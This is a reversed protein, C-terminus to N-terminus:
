RIVWTESHSGLEPGCITGIQYYSFDIQLPNISISAYGTSIATFEVTVKLTSGITWGTVSRGFGSGSKPVVVVAGDDIQVQLATLDIRNGALVSLVIYNDVCADRNVFEFYWSYTQGLPMYFFDADPTLRDARLNETVRGTITRLISSSRSYV